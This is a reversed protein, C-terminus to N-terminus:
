KPSDDKMLLGPESPDVPTTGRHHGTEISGDPAIRPYVHEGLLETMKKTNISIAKMSEVLEKNYTELASLRIHQNHIRQENTGVVAELAALRESIRLISSQMATWQSAVISVGVLLLGLAVIFVSIQTLTVGRLVKMTQRRDITGTM